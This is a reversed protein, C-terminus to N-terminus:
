ALAGPLTDAVADAEALHAPDDSLPLVWGAEAFEATWIVDMALVDLSRATASLRRVLQIRQDDTSRALSFQRVTFRGGSQETCRRAIAGFTVAGSAPTYFSVV